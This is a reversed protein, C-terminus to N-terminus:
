WESYLPYLDHTGNLWLFSSMPPAPDYDYYKAEQYAPEEISYKVFIYM